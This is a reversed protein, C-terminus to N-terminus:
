RPRSFRYYCIGGLLFLILSYIQYQTFVNFVIKYHDGRFFELFFRMLPYILLYSFFTQGEFKKRKDIWLLVFFLTVLLLAEYLQTPHISHSLGYHQAPSSGAPFDVGWPCETPKGYCCGNLFCGVRGIGHALAIIPIIFDAFKLFSLKRRKLFFWLFIVGGVFSGYFVLGGRHIMFIELPRHWFEDMHFLVYAIRAGLLGGVIMWIGLDYVTQKPIEIKYARKVMLFLSLIFALALVTGYSYVTFPGFHFLISRM